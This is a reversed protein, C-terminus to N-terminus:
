QIHCRAAQNRLRFGPHSHERTPLSAYAIILKMNMEGKMPGCFTNSRYCATDEMVGFM